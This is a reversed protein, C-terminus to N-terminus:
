KGFLSHGIFGLFTGIASAIGVTVWFGGKGKNALELLEKIDREMSDVKKELQEVAHILKGYEVPDFEQAM